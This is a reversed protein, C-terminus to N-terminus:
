LDYKNIEKVLKHAVINFGLDSLHVGDVTGESDDLLSTGSIFQVGPIQKQLTEYDLRETNLSAKVLSMSDFFHSILIIPTKKNLISLFTTLKNKMYELSPSNAELELILLEYDIKNLEKAMNEELKCSGSFGLNIVNYGTERAIISTYAMGPRSACGGQTISTGYAVIAKGKVKEFAFSSKEDIGVYAENLQQYLPFYLKFERMKKDLNTLLVVDYDKSMVKTCNLFTYKNDEKLYIDFGITAVSTMHSMYAGGALSAKIKIFQSDTKFSISMGAPCKSLLTVAASINADQSLRCFGNPFARGELFNNNLSIYKTSHINSKSDQMNKDIKKIDM